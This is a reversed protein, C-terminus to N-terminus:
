ALHGLPVLAHLATRLKQAIIVGKKIFWTGLDDLRITVFTDFWAIHNVVGPDLYTPVWAAELDLVKGFGVQLAVGGLASPSGNDIDVLIVGVVELVGLRVEELATPIHGLFRGHIPLAAARTAKVQLLRMGGCALGSSDAAVKQVFRIALFDMLVVLLSDQDVKFGNSVDWHMPEFCSDGRNGDM